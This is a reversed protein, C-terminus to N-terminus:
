VRIGIMLVDDVQELMGKWDEFIVHLKEGQEKLTLSAMEKLRNQIQRYKFKKGKEGGFQDAYGDSFLYVTDGKHLNVIHTTFPTAKDHKGIPQKDPAVEKLENDQMYWLPNNAGAWKLEGTKTNISSLSIDMGDKVDSQSREFTELVLDRVKDLIKGPELLNFEKVARNLANSCVVSVLAGPVGHGTCDAAAVLIQDGAKFMWYFDGAVIAKPKYLVFSEPLHEEILQIPPLIADQLRKAYTISDLVEKNKEEVLAKQKETMARQHEVEEKQKSIIITKRKNQQLGRYIIGMFVLVLLFGITLAYRITKQRKLEAENKAQEAKYVAATKEEESKLQQEKSSYEVTAFRKVEEINSSSDKTSVYLEHMALATKYDGSLKAATSFLKAANQICQPESSEKAVQLSEQAAKKADAIKNTKVYIEGMCYLCSSIIRKNKTRRAIDLSQNFYKLAENNDMLKSYVEGILYLTNCMNEDDDIKQALTIVQNYYNLAEVYNGQDRYVEGIYTLAANYLGKDEVDRAMDMGTTYCKIANKYDKQERYIDGMGVYEYDLGAKDDLEREIDAAKNYFELAKAYEAEANYIEAISSYCSAVDTPDDIEVAMRISQNFYDLAKVNDSQEKYVEGISSLCFAIKAKDKAATAMKICADYYFMATAYESKMRYVEGLSSMCDTQRTTDNLMTAAQLARNYYGLAEFYNYDMRCAEGLSSLCDAELAQMNASDAVDVARNFIDISRKYNSAAYYINGEWYLAQAVLRKSGSALVMARKFCATASDDRDEDIFYRGREYLANIEGYPYNLKVSQKYAEDSIFLGAKGSKVALENLANIAATDSKAWLIRKITKNVLRKSKGTDKLLSDVRSGWKITLNSVVATQTRKQTCSCWIVPLIVVWFLRLTTKM